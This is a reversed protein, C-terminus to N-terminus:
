RSAAGLDELDIVREQLQQLQRRRYELDNMPNGSQQEILNEEGTASIDLLCWAAASASNSTSTNRWSWTPGSTSSSSARTPALRHPRDPRLAPHHARPELPHRLQDAYDCDQLNQGESICDTAILLDIEGEDALEPAARPARRSRRSCARWTPACVPLTTQNRGARHGAGMCASIPPAWPALERYLYEATDAFATFVIVKRNGPNIPSRSRTSIVGRLRDLKDDRAPSWRRAAVTTDCATATRKLEQRWRVRDVDQLLM